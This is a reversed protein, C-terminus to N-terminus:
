LILPCQAWVVACVQSSDIHNMLLLKGFGEVAITRLVSDESDLYRHLVTLLSVNVEQAPAEQEDQEDQEQNEDSQQKSLDFTKLGYLLVLDFLVELASMQVVDQDM